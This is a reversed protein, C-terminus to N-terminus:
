LGVMDDMFALQSFSAEDTQLIELRTLDLALPTAERVKYMRRKRVELLIIM